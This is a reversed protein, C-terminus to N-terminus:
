SSRTRPCKRLHDSVPTSSNTRRHHYTSWSICLFDSRATTTQAFSKQQELVAPLRYCASIASIAPVPRASHPISIFYTQTYLASRVRSTDTHSTYPHILSAFHTSLFLSPSTVARVSRTTCCYIHNHARSYHEATLFGYGHSTRSASKLDVTERVSSWSLVQSQCGDSLFTAQM